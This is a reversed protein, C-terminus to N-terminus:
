HDLTRKESSLLNQMENAFWPGLTHLFVSPCVSCSAQLGSQLKWLRHQNPSGHRSTNTWQAENLGPYICGDGLLNQLVKHKMGCVLEIPISVENELLVQCRGVCGFAGFGPEIVTTVTSSQGAFEGSRFGMSFRHPM